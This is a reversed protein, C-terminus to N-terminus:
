PHFGKAYKIVTANQFGGDKGREVIVADGGVECIRAGLAKRFAAEDKPVDGNYHALTGVEQYDEQPPSLFVKYQCGTPGPERANEGKTTPSFTYSTPVCGAALALLVILRLMFTMM